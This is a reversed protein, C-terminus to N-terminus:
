AGMAIGGDVNFVQGTIYAAAADLALFRVMGAVESPEGLRGLPIEAKIQELPLQATMDSAIFGPAVANITVGRSAVEKAASM